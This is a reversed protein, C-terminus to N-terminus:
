GIDMIANDGGNLTMATIMFAPVTNVFATAPFDVCAMKILVYM